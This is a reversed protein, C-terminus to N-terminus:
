TIITIITVLKTYLFNNFHHSFQTYKVHCAFETQVFYWQINDIMLKLNQVSMLLQLFCFCPLYIYIVCIPGNLFYTVSKQWKEVCGWGETVNHSSQSYVGKSFIHRQVVYGGGGGMSGMLFLPVLFIFCTWLCGKNRASCCVIYQLWPTVRKWVCVGGGWGWWRWTNESRGRHSTNQVFISGM